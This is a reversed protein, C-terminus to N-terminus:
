INVFFITVAFWPRSSTMRICILQLHPILTTFWQCDIIYDLVVGLTSSRHISWLLCNFYISTQIWPCGWGMWQEYLSYYWTFSICGNIYQMLSKPSCKFHDAACSTFCLGNEIRRPIELLLLHISNLTCFLNDDFIWSLLKMMVITLM